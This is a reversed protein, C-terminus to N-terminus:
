ASPRTARPNRSGRPTARPRLRVCCVVMRPAAMVTGSRTTRAARAHTSPAHRGACTSTFPPRMVAIPEGSRLSATSSASSSTSSGPRTSLWTCTLSGPRVAHSPNADAVRAAAAPPTVVSTSMGSLEIGGVVDTGARSALRAAVAPLSLTSTANQPPATGSFRPASRGSCSAPTRPNLANRAGDPTSSNPCRSGACSSAASASTAESPLTSITCASSGDSRRPSPASPSRYASKRALRGATLSRCAIARTTSAIRRVPARACTRCRDSAPESSRTRAAM